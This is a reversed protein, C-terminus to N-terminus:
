GLANSITLSTGQPAGGAHPPLSQLVMRLRRPVRQVPVADRQHADGSHPVEAEGREPCMCCM